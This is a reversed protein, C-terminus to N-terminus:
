SSSPTVTAPTSTIPISERITSAIAEILPQDKPLEGSPVVAAVIVAQGNSYFAIVLGDDNKGSLTAEMGDAAGLRFPQTPGFTFYPASSSLLREIFDIIGTPSPTSPSEATAAPTSPSAETSLTLGPSITNLNAIQLVIAGSPLAPLDTSSSPAIVMNAAKQDTALWVSTNAPQSMTFWGNPYNFTYLSDHYTQSLKFQSILETATAGVDATATAPQTGSQARVDYLEGMPALGIAAGLLLSSFISVLVLSKLRV